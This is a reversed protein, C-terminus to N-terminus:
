QADDVPGLVGRRLVELAQALAPEAALSREGDALKREADLGELAEDAAFWQAADVLTHERHEGELALGHVRAQLMKDFLGGIEGRRKRARTARPVRRRHLGSRGKGM